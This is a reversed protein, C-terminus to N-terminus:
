AAGQTHVRQGSSVRVADARGRSDTGVQADGRTQHFLPRPVEGRGAAHDDGSRDLGPGTQHHPQRFARTARQRIARRAAGGNVISYRTLEANGGYAADSLGGGARILDRVTMGPQYPYEGPVNARGDIRVVANPEGINSQLKLDELLPQIVRDRSSQLDFVTIRDRPLLQVDAASGPARLAQDLDASLVTVHRDPPLERRILIYHLDANPKLEDVSQLVDSLRMGSQYAYAGPSYVYGQVQIGADLTPRLRAIRLSDGNRVAESRGNGTLDVQLVVRHLAADIRTLTVKGTDAEPTLGGALQVADTVTSENKIEYIAPRHVEGDVTVTPGIPPIFIVDGPLLRADDTTDGRILM